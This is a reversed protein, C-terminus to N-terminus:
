RDLITRVKAALEEVTYPKSLLETCFDLTGNHVIANRTYGTGTGKGVGKTTYFPDFAKEIVDSTMGTGTDTVCVLVYQGEPISYERAYRVDVHANGTEITLKGGDVMADRANVSLNLVASELQAPDFEVQWLGAGLVTEVQITGGLTRTLLESM